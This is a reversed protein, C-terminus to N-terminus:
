KSEKSKKRIFKVLKVTGYTITGVAALVLTTIISGKVFGERKCGKILCVTAVPYSDSMKNVDDMMKNALAKDKPVLITYKIKVDKTNEMFDGKMIYLSKNAYLVSKPRIGVKKKRNYINNLKKITYYYSIFTPKQGCILKKM